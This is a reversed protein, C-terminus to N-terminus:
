RDLEAGPLFMELRPLAGAMFAQLRRDADSVEEYDGVPTILRVLAGDTRQKTLADWFVYIKLQYANTLNRGRQPFWYYVLQRAGNKLMFARNVKLAGYGDIRLLREGAGQFVWGSGSLCSAPSHISEGKRQSEYYATYFNVERGQDNRYDIIFYDSLDLAEIFQNEMTQRTGRWSGITLPFESLPRVAPIRERFDVGRTLAFSGLLLGLAILMVAQQRRRSQGPGRGSEVGARPSHAVVQRGPLKKLLAMELLLIVLTVMFILWGSFDHFFGEAVEPGFPEYLIGTLAIRLSNTLVILPLTSIVLVVKKWFPAKFFWALLLGLIIIPFLYRLGSCADVVQLQTFGLDIVNGERYVTMGFLQMIEVGIRSSILKLKLSLRNHLFSPLPFMAPIMLLPFMVTKFRQWGHHLWVLGVTVLWAGLYLSLYEGGLEGLWYFALGLLLPLFGGPGLSQPRSFFDRRQEWLMYIIVLPVLYCYSYDANGWGAVMRELGEHFLLAICAAYLLPTLLIAM